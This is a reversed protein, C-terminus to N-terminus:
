TQSSLLHPSCLAQRPPPRAATGARSGSVWDWPASPAAHTFSTSPSPCAPAHLPTPPSGCAPTRAKVKLGMRAAPLAPHSSSWRSPSLNPFPRAPQQPLAPTAPPFSPTWTVLESATAVSPGPSLFPAQVPTAVPVCLPPCAGASPSPTPCPVVAVFDQMSVCAPPESDPSEMGELFSRGQHKPAQPTRLCPPSGHTQSTDWPKGPAPTPLSGPQTWASILCTGRVHEPTWCFLPCLFPYFTALARPYGLLSPTGLLESHRCGLGVRPTSM